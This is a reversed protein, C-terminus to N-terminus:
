GAISLPLAGEALPRAWVDPRREELPLAFRGLLLLKEEAAAGTEVSRRRGGLTSGIWAALGVAASLTPAVAAVALLSAYTPRRASRRSTGQWRMSGSCSPALTSFSRGGGPLRPWAATAPM